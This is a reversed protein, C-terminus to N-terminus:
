QEDKIWGIVIKGEKQDKGIVFIDKTGIKYENFFAVCEIQPIGRVKVHAWTRKMPSLIKMYEASTLIEENNQTKIGGLIGINKRIPFIAAGSRQSPSVGDTSICNKPLLLRSIPLGNLYRKWNYKITDYEWIDPDDHTRSIMSSSTLQQGGYIYLKNNFFMTSQSSRRSPVFASENYIIEWSNKKADYIAFDKSDYYKGNIYMRGGYLALRHHDISNLTHMMRPKPLHHSQNLNKLEFTIINLEYFANTIEGTILNKGGFIYLRNGIAATAIFECPEYHTEILIPHQILKLPSQILDIFLCYPKEKALIPIFLSNNIIVGDRYCSASLNESGIVEADKWVPTVIGFLNLRVLRYFRKCTLSLRHQDILDLQDLLLYFIENPLYSLYDGKPSRFFYFHSM